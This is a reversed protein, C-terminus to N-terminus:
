PETPDGILKKILDMDKMVKLSILGGLLLNMYYTLARWAIITVGIISANIFVSFISAAGLEAVGSAGPTAPVVMVIALFVQAAFATLISTTQSLGDLILVLLFFEVAWFLYTYFMGWLLGKKGVSIFIWISEHFFDVERDVKEMLHSFSADTQKGLLPAIRGTIRRIINKVKKPKWLGYIFFSLVILALLSAILLAMNFKSGPLTDKMIYFAFPLSSFVLFADLLREGIVIATAKGLPIRNLHLMSLRVPEGGASSPTVGAVFVGSLIIEVIKLYNVRYGLANCMARTRAGWIFYSIIHFLGAVLIYEIKIKRLAEITDSNFTLVNVLTISAVSIFLSAILWKKYRNM